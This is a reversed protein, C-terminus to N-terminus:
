ASKFKSKFSYYDRSNSTIVHSAHSKLNFSSLFKFHIRNIVSAVIILCKNRTSM